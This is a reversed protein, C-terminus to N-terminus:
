IEMQLLREQLRHLPQWNQQHFIAFLICPASVLSFLDVLHMNHGLLKIIIEHINIVQVDLMLLYFYYVGFIILM